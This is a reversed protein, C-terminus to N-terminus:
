VAPMTWRRRHGVHSRERVCWGVVVPSSRSACQDTWWFSFWTWNRRETYGGKYVATKYM